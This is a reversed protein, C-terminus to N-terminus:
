RPRPSVENVAILPLKDGGLVAMAEFIGRGREFVDPEVAQLRRGFDLAEVVLTCDILM